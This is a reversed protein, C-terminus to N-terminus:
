QKMWGLLADPRKTSNYSSAFGYAAYQLDRAYPLPFGDLASANLLRIPHRLFRLLLDSTVGRLSLRVLRDPRRAM